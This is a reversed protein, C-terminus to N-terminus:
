FQIGIRFTHVAGFGNALSERVVGLEYRNLSVGVSGIATTSRGDSESESVVGGEVSILGRWAGHATVRHTVGSRGTRRALGYAASVSWDKLPLAPAVRAAGSWLGNSDQSQASGAITIPVSFPLALQLGIGLRTSTPVNLIDSGRVLLANAGVTMRSVVHSAAVAFLDQGVNISSGEEPATETREIDDIGVHQFGAGITTRADLRYAGAVGMGTVGSTGPGRLDMLVGEGRGAVTLMGPNRFVATAGSLLADPTASTRVVWEDILQQGRAPAALVTCALAVALAPQIRSRIPKEQTM